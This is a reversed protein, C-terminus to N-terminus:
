EDDHDVWVNHGMGDLTITEGDEGIFEITVNEQTPATSGKLRVVDLYQGSTVDHRKLHLGMHAQLFVEIEDESLAGDQNADAEPHRELMANMPAQEVVELWQLVEAAAPRYDINELLWPEIPGGAEHILEIVEVSGDDASTSKSIVHVREDNAQEHTIWQGDAESVQQIFMGAGVLHATEQGSLEGDQDHDAHPFADIVAQPDSQALAVLFADHETRSLVGDGDADATPHHELFSELSAEHARVMMTLTGEMDGGPKAIFVAHPSSHDIHIGHVQTLVGEVDEGDPDAHWSDGAPALLVNFQGVTNVEVIDDPVASDVALIVGHPVPQQAPAERDKAGASTLTVVCWLGMLGVAPWTVRRISRRQPPELIMDIRREITRPNAAMAATRSAWLGPSVGHSARLLCRAYAGATLQGRQVAWVDCAHERVLDLRRNVWAVVPWFFLVTGAFWQVQRVWMDGRRLHAVEHLVVAELEEPRSLLERPIVLTPRMLGFIFPSVTHDAVRVDIGRKCGCRRCLDVVFALTHKNAKPFDQCAARFQIISHMRWCAVLVLGLLYALALWPVWSTVTAREATAVVEERGLMLWIADRLTSPSAASEARPITVGDIWSSASVVVGEFSVPSDPWAPLLFKALVITWLVGHSWLPLRRGCLWVVMATLLALVTGHLVGHGLWDLMSQLIIM